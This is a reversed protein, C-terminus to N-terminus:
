SDALKRYWAALGAATASWPYAAVRAHGRTVLGDGASPDDLVAALAAALATTDDPDVLLAADGALEPISGARGAVVPVGAAMAELVPFGFGEYRSPYAVVAAGRLLAGRERDDVPGTLVVRARTTPALRDIAADVAPRGPGDRGALVLRVDPRDAAVAGFATVLAALNKRTEIAGIALVFPGGPGVAAPWPGAAPINPVGLPVVAIRDQARLGPGFVEEAEDAAFESACHLVAGRAVARRVVPALARIAPACSAPDRVFSCDWVSVLVPLRSPPALYNTAHVVGAPGLWRDLRPRDFRGWTRLLVGAPIPVARSGVPTGAPHRGARASLTYPVTPVATGPARLATVISAVAVGIGSPPGIVPTVDIAVAPVPDGTVPDNTGCGPHVGGGSIHDVRHLFRVSSGFIM